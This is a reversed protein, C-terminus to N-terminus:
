ISHHLILRFIWRAVIPFFDFLFVSCFIGGGSGGSHHMLLGSTAATNCSHMMICLLRSDVTRINTCVTYTPLPRLLCCTWTYFLNLPGFAIELVSSTDWRKVENPSCAAFNGLHDNEISTVSLIKSVGRVLHGFNSLFLWFILLFLTFRILLTGFILVKSSDDGM